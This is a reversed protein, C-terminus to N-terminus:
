CTTNVDWSVYAILLGMGLIKAVIEATRTDILLSNRRNMDLSRAVVSKVAYVHLLIVDVIGTSLSLSLCLCHKGCLLRTVISSGRAITYSFWSRLWKTMFKRSRRSDSSLFEISVTAFLSPAKFRSDATGCLHEDTRNVRTWFHENIERKALNRKRCFARERPVSCM